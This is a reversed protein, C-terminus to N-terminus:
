DFLRRFFESINFSANAHGGMLVHFSASVGIVIDKNDNISVFGISRSESRETNPCEIISKPSM